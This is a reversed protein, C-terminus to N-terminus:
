KIIIIIHLHIFLFVNWSPFLGNHVQLLRFDMRPFGDASIRPNGRISKQVRTHINKSLSTQDILAAIMGLIHGLRIKEKNIREFIIFCTRVVVVLQFLDVVPLIPWLAVYM